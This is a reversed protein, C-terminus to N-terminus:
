HGHTAVTEGMRDGEEFLNIPLSSYTSAFFGEAKEVLAVGGGGGGDLEQLAAGKRTM